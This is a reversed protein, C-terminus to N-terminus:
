EMMMDNNYRMGLKGNMNDAALSIIKYTRMIDLSGDLKNRLGDFFYEAPFAVM